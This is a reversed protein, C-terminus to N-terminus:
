NGFVLIGVFIPWPFVFFLFISYLFFFWCRGICLCRSVVSSKKGYCSARIDM